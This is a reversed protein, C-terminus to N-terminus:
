VNGQDEVEEFHAEDGEFPRGYDDTDWTPAFTVMRVAVPAERLAQTAIQRWSQERASLCQDLPAQCRRQFNTHDGQGCRFCEGSNLPACGPRLPYPRAIKVEVNGNAQRWAQQQDGHARRGAETDPHHPIRAIADLLARRDNGM